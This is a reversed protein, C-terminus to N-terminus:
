IVTDKLNRPASSGKLMFEGPSRAPDINVILSITLYRILALSTQPTALVTGANDYYAFTATGQSANQVYQSLTDKRSYTTTSYTAPSGTAEYIYRYLTSTSLVYEIYEVASDKDIDGYFGIKNSQVVALPYAGNAGFTMERADQMWTTLGRRAVEIENAQELTYSNQKYLQTVSSTISLSLITFLFIVVLTEVLTFGLRSSINYVM